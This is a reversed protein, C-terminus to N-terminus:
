SRRFSSDLPLARDTHRRVNSQGLNRFRNFLRWVLLGRGLWTGTGGRHRLALLVSVAGAVLLPNRKVYRLVGLGHDVLALPAVWVELEKGLSQRQCAIKATLTRRRSLIDEISATM